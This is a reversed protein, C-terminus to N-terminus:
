ISMQGHVLCKKQHDELGGSYQAGPCCCLADAAEASSLLKALSSGSATCAVAHRPLDEQPQHAHEPPLLAAEVVPGVVRRAVVHAAAGM